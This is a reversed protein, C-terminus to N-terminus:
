EVPRRPSGAAADARDAQVEAFASRPLQRLASLGEARGVGRHAQRARGAKWDRYKDGHCQGCLRYSEAFPIPAGSASRLVDRNDANHCDLCWRHEEDHQLQINAHAKQLVRRETNVALNPDHCGTCPFIGPSFPPAPVPYSGRGERRGGGARRRAQAARPERLSPGKPLMAVAQVIKPGAATTMRGNARPMRALVHRGDADSSFNIALMWGGTGFPVSERIHFPERSAHVEHCARCTRGKQQNVHLWHLNKDGDRFGTLGTGQPQLVLDPAHCNFCLKYQDIRSRRM